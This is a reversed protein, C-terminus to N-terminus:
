TSRKSPMVVGHQSGEAQLSASHPHLQWSIIRWTAFRGIPVGAGDGDGRRQRAVAGTYRGSELHKERSSIGVGRFTSPIALIITSYAVIRQRWSIACLCTLNGVCVGTAVVLRPPWSVSCLSVGDGPGQRGWTAIWQVLLRLREGLTIAVKRSSKRVM